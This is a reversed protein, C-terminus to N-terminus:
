SEKKKEKQKPIELRHEIVEHRQVLGVCETQNLSASRGRRRM